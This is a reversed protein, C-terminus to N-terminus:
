CDGREGSDNTNNKTASWESIISCLRLMDSVRLSLLWEKGNQRHLVLPLNDVADAIAQDLWKYLQMREQHKVEWHLEPPGGLIDASEVGGAYQQARRFHAGLLDTLVGAAEREARKGKQRSNISMGEVRSWGRTRHPAPRLPNRSIWLGEAAYISAKVCGSPIWECIHSSESTSLHIGLVNSPRCTPRARPVSATALVTPPLRQSAVAVDLAALRPGVLFFTSVHDHAFAVALSMTWRLTAGAPDSQRDSLDVHRTPYESHLFCAM